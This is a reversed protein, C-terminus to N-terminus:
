TSTLCQCHWGCSGHHFGGGNLRYIIYINVNSLAVSAVTFVQTLCDLLAVTPAIDVDPLSYYTM